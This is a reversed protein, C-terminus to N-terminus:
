QSTVSRLCRYRENVRESPAGVADHAGGVAELGAFDELTGVPERFDFFGHTLSFSGNVLATAQVETDNSIARSAMMREAM